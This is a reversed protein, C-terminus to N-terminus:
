VAHEPHVKEDAARVHALRRQQWVDLVQRRPWKLPDDEVLGRRRNSQFQFALFLLGAIPVFSSFGDGTPKENRTTAAAVVGSLKQLLPSLSTQM